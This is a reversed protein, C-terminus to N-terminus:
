HCGTENTAHLDGRKSPDYASNEAVLIAAGRDYSQATQVGAAKPDTGRDYSQATQVGAAKPDTGRDYSQAVKPPCPRVQATAADFAIASTMM